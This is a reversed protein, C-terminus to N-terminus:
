WTPCQTCPRPRVTSSIFGANGMILIMYWLEWLRPDQLYHLIEIMLRLVLEWHVAEVVRLSFGLAM